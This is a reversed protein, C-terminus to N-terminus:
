NQYLAMLKHLSKKLYENTESTDKISFFFSGIWSTNDEVTM